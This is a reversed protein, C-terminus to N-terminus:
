SQVREASRQASRHRQSFTLSPPGWNAPDQDNGTIGADGSINERNEFFPVIRTRLRSFGYTAFLFRHPTLRHTWNIQTNIGLTSTNDTFGFLNNVGARVSQFNFSGYVQDRRGLTKDLRSLLQDQHTSNLVPIQYNYLGNAVINPLPYLQLLAQAQPSVPVVNGPYPLGTMPNIVIVPQGLPNLLGFLDGAREDETPVLGSENTATHNRTWEYAVFFTPGRPMLHPINLPGGLTAIGTIRNYAAKPTDLGSLSFPRADLASNDYIVAVGGNYLSRSNSRRNGFAQNLSYRSTAANNVSGNVLFGDASQDAEAAPKPMEPAPAENAAATAAKMASSLAPIPAPPSTSLRTLQDLPLLTLEYKGAATKAAITVDAHLSSFCLMDIELKAPGDELGTVTFIGGPDSIAAQKKSGQTVTM